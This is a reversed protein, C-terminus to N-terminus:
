WRGKMRPATRALEYRQTAPNLRVPVEMHVRFNNRRITIINATRALGNEEWCVTLLKPNPPFKQVKAMFQVPAQEVHCKEALVALEELTLNLGLEVLLVNLSRECLLATGCNKDFKWDSDRRLKKQRATQLTRLPMGLTAGLLVESLTFVDSGLIESASSL